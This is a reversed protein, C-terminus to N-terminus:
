MTFYKILDEKYEEIANKVIEKSTFYVDFIGAKRNYFYHTKTINNSLEYRDIFWKIQNNHNWDIECENNLRAFDSLQYKLWRFLKEKEAEKITLFASNNYLEYSAIESYKYEEIDGNNRLCYYNGQKEIEEKLTM